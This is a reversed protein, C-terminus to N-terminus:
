VFYLGRTIPPETATPPADDNEFTPTTGKMQQEWEYHWKKMDAVDHAVDEAVDRAVDQAM